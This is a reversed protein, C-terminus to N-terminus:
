KKMMVIFWKISAYFILLLSATIGHYNWKNQYHFLIYNLLWPTYLVIRSLGYMWKTVTKIMRTGNSNPSIEEIIKSLNLLPTTCELLIMLSHQTFHTGSPVMRDVIGIFLSIFHHIFFIYQKRGRASSLLIITDYIFYSLFQNGTFLSPASPYYKWSEYLLNYICLYVTWTQWTVCTLRNAVENPYRFTVKSSFLFLIIRYLVDFSFLQITATGIQEQTITSIM